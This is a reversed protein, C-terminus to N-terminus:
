HLSLLLAEPKWSKVDRVCEKMEIVSYPESEKSFTSVGVVDLDIKATIAGSVHLNSTAALKPSACNSNSADFSLITHVTPTLTFTPGGIHYFMAALTIRLGLGIAAGVEDTDTISELHKVELSEESKDLKHVAEILHFAGGAYKLGAEFGISMKVGGSFVPTQKRAMLTQVLEVKSTPVFYLPFGGVPIHIPSYTKKWM